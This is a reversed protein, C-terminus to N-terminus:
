SRASRPALRVGLQPPPRIVAPGAGPSPPEMFRERQARKAIAPASSAAAGADAAAGAGVQCGATVTDDAADDFLAGCIATFARPSLAATQVSVTLPFDTTRPADRTAPAPQLAGAFTGAPGTAEVGRTPM